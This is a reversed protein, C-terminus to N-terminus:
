ISAEFDTPGSGDHRYLTLLDATRDAVVIDHTGDRDIDGAGIEWGTTATFSIRQDPWADGAGVDNMYWYPDTNAKGGAAVDLRGDGDFDAVAVALAGGINARIVQNSFAPPQGGLNELWGVTDIESAAYVVDQRGDRNIDAVVVDRPGNLSAIVRKVWSTAAGDVNDYWAIVDAGFFGAVADLTGDSNLDGSDVTVVIGAGADIVQKGASQPGSGDNLYVVLAESGESAVLLDLAHDGNLDLALCDSRGGLTEVPHSTPYFASRHITRNELWGLQEDGNSVFGWDIDGDNDLDVPLVGIPDRHNAPVTRRTFSPMAAGDGEYYLMVHDGFFPLTTVALDTDGDLDCDGAMISRMGTLHDGTEITRQTFTLPSGGLNEEWAFRAPDGAGVRDKGYVIDPLGDANMDHIILQKLSAVEARVPREGFLPPITGANEFYVIKEPVFASRVWAVFDVDGDSDLDSTRVLGVDELLAADFAQFVPPSGGQNEIRRIVDAGVTVLDVDGDGDLDGLDFNVGSGSIVHENTFLPTATGNNELWSTGKLLDLDGDRDVDVCRVASAAAHVSGPSFTGDGRNTYWIINDGATVLDLDGDRDIDGAVLM